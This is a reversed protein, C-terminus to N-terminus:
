RGREKKTEIELYQRGREALQYSDKVKRIYGTELLTALEGALRLMDVNLGKSLAFISLPGIELRRLILTRLDTMEQGSFMM